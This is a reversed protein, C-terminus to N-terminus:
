INGLVALKGFIMLIGVAILVIGGILNIQRQYKAIFPVIRNVSEILLAALVLPIMVGASFFALLVGGSFTNGTAAVALIAGLTPGICPTWAFSTVIGFLFASWFGDVERRFPIFFGKEFFPLTFLGTYSLGFIVIIVGGLRSILDRYGGLFTGFTGSALGLLIFISSLGLSFAFARWVASRKKKSSVLFAFFGPLIPFICPSLFSLLGGLVAAWYNVQATLLM